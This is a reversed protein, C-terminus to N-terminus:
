GLVGLSQNEFAAFMKALRRFEGRVTNYKQKILLYETRHKQKWTKVYHRNLEATKAAM